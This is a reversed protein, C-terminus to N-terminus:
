TRKRHRPTREQTKDTPRADPPVSDAREGNSADARKLAKLLYAPDHALHQYVNAIMTADSHGALVSVTVHDVGSKLLRNIWSHRVNTLCYKTGLKKKLGRFRCAVAIPNYAVGRTNRFLKGEPWKEMLKKTIKLATDTLYVVRRRKKGKSDKREFIWCQRELDVDKAEVILIEQPRAGVEWAVTILDRFAEDKVELMKRYHDDPIVVERRGGAPKEIYAIPSSDIYGQKCAFRLATKITTIAGKRTSDSWTDKSDVWEQVHFPKLQGVTLRKPAHDLFSQAFDSYWKYTRKAKHKKVWDLFSDLIVAVSDSSLKQKEPKSMLEHFRIEAADKDPGLRHRKGKIHVCWEGWSSHWWPKPPRAM